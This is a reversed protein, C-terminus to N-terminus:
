HTYGVRQNSDPKNSWCEHKLVSTDIGM